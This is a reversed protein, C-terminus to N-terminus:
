CKLETFGSQELIARLDLHPQGMSKSINAGQTALADAAENNPIGIHSYVHHFHIERNCNFIYQRIKHAAHSLAPSFGKGELLQIALKSDTFIHIPGTHAKHALEIELGTGIAWLEGMNNTSHGLACSIEQKEKGPTLLIAGAGAPGPNPSASGDTWLQTADAPLGNTIAETKGKAAAAAAKNTKCHKSSKGLEAQTIAKTPFNANPFTSDSLTHPAMNILLSLTTETIRQTLIEKSTCTFPINKRTTTTYVEEEQGRTIWIAQSLIMLATLHLPSTVTAGLMTDAFPLHPLPNITAPLGFIVGMQQLCERTITCTAYIHSATDGKPTGCLLCRLDAELHTKSHMGGRALTASTPLANHTLNIYHFRTHDPVWSPLQALKGLLETLQTGNEKFVNAWTSTLKEQLYHIYGDYGRLYLESQLTDQYITRAATQFYSWEKSQHFQLLHAASVLAHTSMRMTGVAVQEQAWTITAASPKSRTHHWHRTNEAVAAQNWLEPLKLPQKLGMIATPRTLQDIKISSFRDIWCRINAKIDRMIDGKHSVKRGGKGKEPLPDPILFFKAPFGVLPLLFTNAVIIRNPTSISNKAHYYQKIRKLFKKLGPYFAEGVEAHPGIPVGLYHKSGAFSIQDWGASVLATNLHPHDTRNAGHTSVVFTKNQNIILGTAEAFVTFSDKINTIHHPLSKSGLAVDDAYFLRDLDNMKLKSALVDMLLVFLLPSLPCGQKIGRYFYIKKREAGQFNTLCHAENFLLKIATIITGPMGIKRLTAFIMDHSVSDFAKQFDFLLIDYQTNNDIAEYFNENLARIHAEMQRGPLYGAQCLDIIKDLCPLIAQRICTAILRNDTNSVVIPRTNEVTPPGPKPFLHLTAENFDESPIKGATLAQIVGLLMPAAWKSLRRYVAFPIGDPGASTNKSGLITDEVEKLGIKGVPVTIKKNYNQLLKNPNTPGTTAWKNSWFNAAIETKAVPNTTTRNSHPITLEELYTKTSPLITKLKQLGTPTTTERKEETSAAAANALLLSFRNRLVISAQVPSASNQILTITPINGKASSIISDMTSRSLLAEKLASSTAKLEQSSSDIWRRARDMKRISAATKIATLKFASSITYATANRRRLEGLKQVWRSGFYNYFRQDEIVHNPIRSSNTQKGHDQLKCALALHDTTNKRTEPPPLTNYLITRDHMPIGTGPYTGPVTYDITAKPTRVMRWEAPMALYFRDIRSSRTNTTDGASQYWTHHKQYVETLGLKKEVEEWKAELTKSPANGSSRDEEALTFNFDGALYHMESPNLTLLTQMLSTQAQLLNAGKGKTPFYVSTTTYEQGTSKHKWTVSILRGEKETTTTPKFHQLVSPKTIIAVGAERINTTTSSSHITAYPAWPRLLKVIEEQHLAKTEQLFVHDYKNTLYALQQHIAKARNNNKALSLSNVNLTVCTPTPFRVDSHSFSPIDDPNSATPHPAHGELNNTTSSM